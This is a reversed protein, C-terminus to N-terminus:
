KVPKVLEFTSLEELGNQWTKKWVKKCTICRFDEICQNTDPDLNNCNEDYRYTFFLMGEGILGTEFQCDNSECHPLKM